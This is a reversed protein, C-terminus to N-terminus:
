WFIIIPPSKELWNSDAMLFTKYPDTAFILGSSKCRKDAYVM